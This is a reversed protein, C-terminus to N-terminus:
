YIDLELFSHGNDLEVSPVTAMVPKFIDPEVSPITALVSWYIDLKMTPFQCISASIYRAGRQSCQGISTMYATQSSLVPVDTRSKVFFHFFTTLIM